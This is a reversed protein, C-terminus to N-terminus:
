IGRIYHCRFAYSESIFQALGDDEPRVDILKRRQLRRVVREQFGRTYSMPSILGRDFGMTSWEFTMSVGCEILLM